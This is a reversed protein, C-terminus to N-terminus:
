RRRLIARLRFPEPYTVCTLLNYFRREGEPIALLRARLILVLGAMMFLEFAINVNLGGLADRVFQWEDGLLVRGFSWYVARGVSGAAFLLGGWALSAAPPTMAALLNPVYARAVWLGLALTVLASIHHFEM